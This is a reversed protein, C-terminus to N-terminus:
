HNDGNNAFDIGVEIITTSVLIKFDKNLFKKLIKEKDDISTKGHILLVENPFLKKLYEFKKNCIFSRNKQFKM